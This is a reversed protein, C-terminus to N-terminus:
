MLGLLRLYLYHRTCDLMLLLEKPSGFHGENHLESIIQQRLSCDPICLEQIIKGLSPDAAYMNPFAEFGVVRTWMTTLLLTRRSLADAVRNLNRAQHKLTFTFELYHHWHKLTQVIAYFELDYTSYIKKSGSLKESFFAVPRGEQSLVGGIGVGFVDCNVEIVIEFDPLALVPAEIMKQKVLQLNAKAEETWQFDRRKLCETIPAILTSFNTPSYILIDDFYVVVFKGIFPRLVQHIFTM